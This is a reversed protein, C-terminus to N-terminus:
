QTRRVRLADCEARDFARLDSFGVHMSPMLFVLDRRVEVGDIGSGGAGAGAGVGVGADEVGDESGGRSSAYGGLDRLRQSLAGLAARYKALEADLLEDDGGLADWRAQAAAPDETALSTAASILLNASAVDLPTPSSVM